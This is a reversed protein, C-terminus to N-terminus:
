AVAGMARRLATAALNAVLAEDHWSIAYAQPISTGTLDDHFQHWLLRRWANRLSEAPYPLGGLWDAAAAAKEAAELLLENRRNWRKMAGQSTYCGTGHESLLLEGRHRPLRDVGDEALRRFLEDSGSPVTRVPSSGAVARELAELSSAAPAGGKDGVGFFRVAFREGCLGEQRDLQALVEPDEAPSAQLREGYGGPDLVALLESGDAGEWVGVPFPVGVASRMWSGRRLKSTALGTLRCHGAVIPLQAGFGFCDPLFLDRPDVGLHRRFFRRGYLVQRILSEPSPINVDMAEWTAGSVKWRGAAVWRRVEEWAEPWCRRLMAYRFAGDFNVCYHPFRRFAAANDVVTRPLFRGVTDRVTWRWQTDLHSVPLVYVVGPAAQAPPEPAADEATASAPRPSSM